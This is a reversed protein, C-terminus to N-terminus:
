DAFSKKLLEAFAQIQGSDREKKWFACYRREIQKGDQLIPIRRITTGARSLGPVSEVPLFGQNAAVMVRADELNDAFLFSGTFGLINQYYDQETERQDHSSVLVCPVRRLEELTVSPLAALPSEASLEAYTFATFVPFNVYLESFARRQDNFVLDAEDRRILDYLEEHNGNVITLELEPYLKAFSAAAQQLEYAGYTRPYGIRLIHQNRGAIRITERRMRDTEDLLQVSQRYFYEGAPTLSFRRNERILLQVGLDAELAQIQQSVASQSIYCEEAAESFSNNKVVSVFYKMQRLLVHVGGSM